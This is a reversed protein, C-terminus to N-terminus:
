VRSPALTGKIKYNQSIKLWLDVKLNWWHPQTPGTYINIYTHIYTHVSCGGNYEHYGSVDHYGGHYQVGGMISLIDEVTSM